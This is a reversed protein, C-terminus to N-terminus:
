DKMVRVHSENAFSVTPFTFFPLYGSGVGRTTLLLCLFRSRMLLLLLCAQFHADDFGLDKSMGATEANGINSRDLFALLYALFVLTIIRRDLKRRLSKEVAKDIDPIEEGVQDALVMNRASDDAVDHQLKAPEKVPTESPAIYDMVSFNGIHASCSLLQLIAFNLNFPICNLVSSLGLAFPRDALRFPGHKCFVGM